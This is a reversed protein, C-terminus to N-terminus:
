GKLTAKAFDTVLYSLAKGVAANDMDNKPAAEPLHLYATKLGKATKRVFHRAQELSFGSPSMASSPMMRIADMDIEIGCPVHDDAVYDLAKALTKDLYTIDELFQYDVNRTSDMVKLLNESNYSQHLGFAFYKNLFGKQKAYSFGNGSHRGELARFDAHADLNIANVGRKRGLAESVGKLIPYANNHGGGVVVPILDAKVINEIVPAVREDLAECLMHMKQLFYDSGMDLEMAKSQIDSVDISGALVFVDGKLFRNSQVNLFSSLFADWGREAGPKGMNGMVGICEPIGLLCFEAGQDKFQDFSNKTKAELLHVQEGIKTEGKRVKTIAKVEKVSLRKVSAM